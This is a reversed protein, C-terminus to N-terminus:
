LDESIAYDELEAPYCASHYHEGAIPSLDPESARSTERVIGDGRVMLPEYVGILAGCVQCRLPFSV